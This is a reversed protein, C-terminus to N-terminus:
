CCSKTVFKICGLNLFSQRLSVKHAPYTPLEQWPKDPFIKTHQYSLTHPYTLPHTFFCCSWIKLLGDKFTFIIQGAWYSRQWVEVYLGHLFHWNGCSAVSLVAQVSSFVLLGNAKNLWYRLWLQATTVKQAWHAALAWKLSLNRRWHVEYHDITLSAVQPILSSNSNFSPM